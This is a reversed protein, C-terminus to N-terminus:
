YIIGRFVSRTLIIQLCYARIVRYIRVGKLQQGICPVKALEAKAIFKFVPDLLTCIIPIDLWSAHNAVYLCPGQGERVADTDGSVTPRSMCMTLWIRSWIKGTYDFVARNPDLTENMRYIMDVTSMALMWIPGTVLSAMLTVVGFANVIKEKEGEGLTFLPKVEERSLAFNKAMIDNAPISAFLPRQVNTCTQESPVFGQVSLVALVFVSATKPIYSMTRTLNCVSLISFAITHHSVLFWPTVLLIDFLTSLQPNMQCNACSIFSFVTTSTGPTYWYVTHM